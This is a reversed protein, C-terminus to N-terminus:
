GRYLIWDYRLGRTNGGSAIPGAHFKNRLAGWTPGSYAVSKFAKSVCLSRVEEDVANLDGLLLVADDSDASPLFVDLIKRRSTQEQGSPLHVALIRWHQQVDVVGTGFSLKAQVVPNGVSSTEFIREAQLGQRTRVYLHVYGRHAEAAGLFKYQRILGEYPESGECEQLALIDANWRNIEKIVAAKQDALTWSSPAQASCQGGSVNWTAIRFAGHTAYRDDSKVGRTAAAEFVSHPTSTSPSYESSDVFDAPGASV